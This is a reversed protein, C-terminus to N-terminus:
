FKLPGMAVKSVLKFLAWIKVFALNARTGSSTETWGQRYLTYIFQSIQGIQKLSVCSCITHAVFFVMKELGHGYSM